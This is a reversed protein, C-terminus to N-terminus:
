KSKTCRRKRQSDRENKKDLYNKLKIQNTQKPKYM